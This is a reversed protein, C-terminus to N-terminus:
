ESDTLGGRGMNTRASGGAVVNEFPAHHGIVARKLFDCESPDGGRNGNAVNRPRDGEVDSHKSHLDSELITVGNAEDNKFAFSGFQVERECSTTAGFRGIDRVQHHGIGQAQVVVEDCTSDPDHLAKAIGVMPKTAEHELIRIPIADVDTLLELPDCRVTASSEGRSPKMNISVLDLVQTEM